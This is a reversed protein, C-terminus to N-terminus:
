ELRDSLPESQGKEETAQITNIWNTKLRSGLMFSTRNQTGFMTKDITAKVLMGLAEKVQKGRSRTMAGEEIILPDRNSYANFVRADQIM